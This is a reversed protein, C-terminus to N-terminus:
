VLTFGDHDKANVIAKAQDPCIKIAERANAMVLHLSKGTISVSEERTERQSLGPSM